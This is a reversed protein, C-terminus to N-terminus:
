KEKEMRIKFIRQYRKGKIKVLDIETKEYREPISIYLKM